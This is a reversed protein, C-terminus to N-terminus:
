PAPPRSPRSRRRARRSRRAGALIRRRWRDLLTGCLRASRRAPAPASRRGLGLLRSGLRRAPAPARAAAPVRAPAPARLVLRSGSGVAGGACGCGACAGGGACAGAGACAAAARAPAGCWQPRPATRRGGLAASSSSSTAPVYTVGSTRLSALSCPTSRDVTVPCRRRRDSGCTRRGPRRRAPRPPRGLLPPLRVCGPRAARARSRLRGADVCRGGAAALRTAAPPRLAAPDLRHRAHPLHDGGAHDLRQLDRGLEGGDDLDVDGLDGPQALPGLRVEFARSPTM